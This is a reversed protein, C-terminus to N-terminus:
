LGMVCLWCMCLLSLRSILLRTMLKIKILAAVVLGCITSIVCPCIHYEHVIDEITLTGLIVILEVLELPPCHDM